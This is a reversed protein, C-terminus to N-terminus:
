GTRRAPFPVLGLVLAALGGLVFAGALDPTWLPARFHYQYSSLQPAAVPTPIATSGLHHAIYEQNCRAQTISDTHGSCARQADAYVKSSNSSATAAAKAQAVARDYSVQLTFNTSAGMHGLVYAKLNEIAGSTDSGASDLNVINTAQQRAISANHARVYMGLAILVVAAVVFLLRKTM